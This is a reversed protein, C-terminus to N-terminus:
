SCVREALYQTRLKTEDETEQKKKLIREILKEKEEQEAMFRKLGWLLFKNLWISAM